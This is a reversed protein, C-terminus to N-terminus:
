CGRCNRKERDEEDCADADGDRDRRQQRGAKVSHHLSQDGRVLSGGRGSNGKQWVLSARVKCQRCRWRRGGEQVCLRGSEVPAESESSTFAGCVKFLRLDDPRSKV